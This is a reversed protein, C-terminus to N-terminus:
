EILQCWLSWVIMLHYTYSYSESSPKGLLNDCLIDFYLTWANFSRYNYDPMTLLFNNKKTWLGRFVEFIKNCGHDVERMYVEHM